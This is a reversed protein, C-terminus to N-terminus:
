MAFSWCRVRRESGVFAIAAEYGECPALREIWCRSSKERGPGPPLEIWGQSGDGPPVHFHALSGTIGTGLAKLVAENATWYRFFAVSREAIPTALLAEAESPHFFRKAIQDMRIVERLREVDIGVECGATIAVLALDGSHSVNFRLGTAAHKQALRPKGNSDVDFEIAAPQVGLYRGLLRRLAFRAVVFRRKPDEFRFDEARIREDSSLTAWADDSAIPGDALPVAWVHAEDPALELREPGQPWYTKLPM